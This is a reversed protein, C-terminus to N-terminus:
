ITKKNNLQILEKRIRPISGKDSIYKKFIEGGNQLNFNRCKLDLKSLYIIGARNPLTKMFKETAFENLICTELWWNM